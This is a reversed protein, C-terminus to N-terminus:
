DLSVVTTNYARGQVSTIARVRTSARSSGPMMTLATSGPYQLTPRTM